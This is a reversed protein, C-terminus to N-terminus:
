FNWRRLKRGIKRQSKELMMRLKFRNIWNFMYNISRKRCLRSGKLMCPKWGLWRQIKLKWRSSIGTVSRRELVRLIKLQLWRSSTPMMRWNKSSSQFPKSRKTKQGSSTVSNKTCAKNRQDSTMTRLNFSESEKRYSKMWRLWKSM